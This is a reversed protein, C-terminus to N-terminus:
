RARFIAAPETNGPVKFARVKALSKHMSEIERKLDQLQGDTLRIPSGELAQRALLDLNDAEAAQTASAVPAALAAALLTGTHRLVNQRSSQSSM